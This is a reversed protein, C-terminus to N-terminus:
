PTPSGRLREPASVTVGPAILYAAHAAVAVSWAAASAGTDTSAGLVAAFSIAAGHGHATDGSVSFGAAKETRRAPTVAPVPALHGYGHGDGHLRRAHAPPAVTSILVPAEDAVSVTAPSYAFGALDQTGKGM